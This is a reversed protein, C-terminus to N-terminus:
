RAFIRNSVSFPAAYITMGTVHSVIRRDGASHIDEFNGPTFVNIGFGDLGLYFEGRQAIGTM